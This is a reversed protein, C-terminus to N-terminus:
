GDDAAVDVAAVPVSKKIPVLRPLDHMEIELMCPDLM